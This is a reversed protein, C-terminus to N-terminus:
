CRRFSEPKPLSCLFDCPDHKDASNSPHPKKRGAWTHFTVSTSPTLSSLSSRSTSAESHLFSPAKNFTKLRQQDATSPRTVILYRESAPLEPRIYPLIHL